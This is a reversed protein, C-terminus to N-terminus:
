GPSFRSTSLLAGAVSAIGRAENVEEVHHRHSYDGSAGRRSVIVFM